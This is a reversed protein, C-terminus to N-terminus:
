WGAAELGPTIAIGYFKVNVYSQWRSVYNGNKDVKYIFNGASGGLYRYVVYVNGGADVACKYAYSALGPTYEWITVGTSTDFKCVKKESECTFYGYGNHAIEIGHIADTRAKTWYVYGSYNMKNYQSFSDGSYIKGDMDVALAMIHYSSAFIKVFIGTTTAARWVGRSAAAVGVGAYILNNSADVALSYVAPGYAIDVNEAWIFTPPSGDDRLCVVNGAADGAYVYTVGARNEVAISTTTIAWSAYTWGLTGDANLKVIDTGVGWYSEGDENVAVVTGDAVDYHWDEVGADTVRYLEDNVSESTYFYRDALTIQEIAGDIKMANVVGTKIAGGVKCYEGVITKIVGDVKCYKGEAM